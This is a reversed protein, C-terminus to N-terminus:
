LAERIHAIAPINPNQVGIKKEYLVSYLTLVRHSHIFMRISGQTEPPSAVGVGSILNTAPLSGFKLRRASHVPPAVYYCPPDYRLAATPALNQHLPISALSQPFVAERTSKLWSIFPRDPM